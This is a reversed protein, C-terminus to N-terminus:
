STTQLITLFHPMVFTWTTLLVVGSIQIYLLMKHTSLTVVNSKIAENNVFLLCMVQAYYFMAILSTLINATFLAYSWLDNFLYIDEILSMWISMKGYFGAFPPLGAM